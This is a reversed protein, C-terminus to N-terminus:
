PLYAVGVYSAAPVSVAADLASLSGQTADFRFPVVIGSDQDAAYLWSGTPDLSFDRPTKGGSPTFAASTMKGTAPDVAFVVISDDGRNSGFVWRGSPHVWVEAAANGGTAGAPRTSKTEIETLTGNTGDFAFATMTSGLENILYAFKGNPHFALHRPGAGAATSVHAAIPNPALKGTAADFTYQAVYDSGKCPVFVFANSPDTVIMHALAGATRMDTPAGLRGDAGAPLVLVTGDNYNAVMVYRGTRDVSVFAPGSGGSSVAGLFTLAGSTGDIAYAGVRGTSNEDVAYLFTMAGNHALFSPSSGFSPVQSAARLAGSAPDVDFTFINPGYGSAYAVLRADAPPSAADTPGGGDGPAGADTTDPATADGTVSADPTQSSGGDPTPEPPGDKESGGSSSCAACALAALITLSLGPRLM